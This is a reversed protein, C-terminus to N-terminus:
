GRKAVPAVHKIAIHKARIKHRATHQHHRHHRTTMKVPKAKSEEAKVAPAQATKNAPAQVTKNAPAQATKAPTAALAPAALVSVAVLASSITKLM